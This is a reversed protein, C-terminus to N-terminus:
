TLVELSQAFFRTITRNLFFLYVSESFSLERGHPSPGPSQHTIKCRLMGINTSKIKGAYFIKM